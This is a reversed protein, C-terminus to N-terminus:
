NFVREMLREMRAMVERVRFPKLMYDDAGIELARAIEVEGKRATLMSILIKDKAYNKRVETLVEIGDVKPMMGDLLLFYYDEKVFWDDQLFDAGDVYSHFRIVKGAIDTRREIYHRMMDRVVADDDVVIIHVVGKDVTTRLAEYYIVARNRGGKKAAYLARDAKEIIIEPHISESSVTEIGASFRLYLDETGEVPNSSLGTRIRDTIKMAHESSANPLLILFEEGGYRCIVDGPRCVKETKRVFHRLAEDGVLHGYTDNVKKFHDLDCLLLTYCGLESRRLREAMANMENIMFKRNKAGTLDDQLSSKWIRDQTKLRNEVLPFFLKKQIPKSIFDTVGLQFARIKHEASAQSSLMIVPTFDHKAKDIIQELMEVGDGDPLYYDLIVLRPSFEYYLSVGKTGSLAILAQYGNEEMLDKLFTVFEVDDDIILILPTEREIDTEAETDEEIEAPVADFHPLLPNMLPQWEQQSWNKDNTESLLSLQAAAIDHIEKMGITGATGKINHFFRYLEEEHICEANKWQEITKNIREYIMKQYKEM